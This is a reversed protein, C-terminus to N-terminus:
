GTRSAIRRGAETPRRTGVVAVSSSAGLAGIAGRVFLVAPPIEIAALRAPYDPDGIALIRLSLRAIGELIEDRRGAAAVVADAVIRPMSRWTSEPDATAAVLRSAGDPESAAGLAAAPSGFHELVRDLTIPGLGQVSVLVALAERDAPGLPAPGGAGRREPGQGVGIV